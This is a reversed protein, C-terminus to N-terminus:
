LKFSFIFVYRRLSVQLRPAGETTLKGELLPLPPPHYTPQPPDPRNIMSGSKLLVSGRRSPAAARRHRFISPRYRRM